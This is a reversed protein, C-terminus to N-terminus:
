SRHSCRKALETPTGSGATTRIFPSSGGRGLDSSGLDLADVLKAVDARGSADVFNVIMETTVTAIRNRCRTRLFWGLCGSAYRSARQHLAVYAGM